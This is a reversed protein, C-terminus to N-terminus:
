EPLDKCSKGLPTETVVVVGEGAVLLLVVSGGMTVQNSLVANSESLTSLVDVLNFILNLSDLQYSPSM